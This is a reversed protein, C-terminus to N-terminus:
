FQLLEGAGPEQYNLNHAHLTMSSNGPRTQKNKTKKNKKKDFAVIEYSILFASM